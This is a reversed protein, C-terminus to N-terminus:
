PRGPAWPAPTTRDPCRASASLSSAKRFDNPLSGTSMGGPRSVPVGLGSGEAESSPTSLPHLSSGAPHSRALRPDRSRLWEWRTAALMPVARRTTSSPPRAMATAMLLSSSASIGMSERTRVSMPGSRPVDVVLETGSPSVESRDTGLGAAPAPISPAGPKGFAVSEPVLKDSPVLDVGEVSDTDGEVGAVGAPGVGVDAGVGVVFEVVVVLVVVVVVVVVVVAVVM